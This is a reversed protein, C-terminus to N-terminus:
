KVFFVEKTDLTNRNDSNQFNSLCIFKRRIKAIDNGTSDAANIWRIALSELLDTALILTPKLKRVKRTAETRRARASEPSGFVVAFM